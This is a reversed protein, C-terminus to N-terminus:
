HEGGYMKEGAELRIDMRNVARPLPCTAYNTFVCPPNYAKNFDLIVIGNSDVPGTYLYRGGGYTEFETTLDAFVFFLQDAPDGTPELRVTKGDVTFEAVGPTTEKAVYGVITPIEIEKPPDYPLWKAEIRWEPSIKFREIGQFDKCAECDTDKLRVYSSNNREIIYFQFSGMNLVTTTDDVDKGLTMTTVPSEDLTIVVGDTVEITVVGDTERLIGAHVPAKEPFVLANDSASGFTNDGPSLLHLGVVSMWGTPRVLGKARREDWALIEQIYESEDSQAYADMSAGNQDYPAAVLVIALAIVAAALGRILHRQNRMIDMIDFRGGYDCYKRRSEPVTTPTVSSSM